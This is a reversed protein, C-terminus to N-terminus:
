GRLRRIEEELREVDLRHQEVEEENQKQLLDVVDETKYPMTFSPEPGFRPEDNMHKLFSAEVYFLKGHSGEPMKIDTHLKSTIERYVEKKHENKIVILAHNVGKPWGHVVQAANKADAQDIVVRVIDASVIRTTAVALVDTAVARVRRGANEGPLLFGMRHVEDLTISGQAYMGFVWLKIPGVCLEVGTKLWTDREARDKPSCDKSKCKPFLIRLLLVCETLKTKIDAPLDWSQHIDVVAVTYMHDINAFRDAISGHWKKARELFVEQIGGYSSPLAAFAVALGSGIVWLSGEHLLSALFVSIPDFFLNVMQVFIVSLIFM